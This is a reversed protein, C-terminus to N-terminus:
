RCDSPEIKLDPIRPLSKGTGSPLSNNEDLSNETTEDLDDVVIEEGKNEETKEVEVIEGVLLTM